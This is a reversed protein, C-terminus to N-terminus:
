VGVCLVGTWSKRVATWLRTNNPSIPKGLNIKNCKITMEPIAFGFFSPEMKELMTMTAMKFKLIAAM